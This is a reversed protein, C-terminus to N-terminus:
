HAVKAKAKELYREVGMQAYQDAYQNEIIEYAALAEKWHDQKEHIQGLKFLAVPAFYPDDNKVVKKYYSLAKADEEMEDYIDGILMQCTFWYIDDRKKFKLFHHLASEHDNLHLYCLGAFYNSTNAIKTMKYSSILSLFGDYEEDGELATTLMVSDATQVGQTYYEIPKRIAMSGKETRPQLYFRNIAVIGIIIILLGILVGYIINQYQNFFNITKTVINDKQQTTEISKKGVKETKAM